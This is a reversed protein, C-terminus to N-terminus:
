CTAPSNPAPRAAYEQELAMIKDIRRQHRPDGSFPTEIFIHAVEAAVGIGLVRGGLCLVNADNHERSMRATYADHCLAARIGHVKNATYCVGLGTGCIVIGREFEGQAVAEAVARAYDPYDTGTEGQRAGMDVVEYGWSALEPILAAKLAYGAHDSAIAIRM